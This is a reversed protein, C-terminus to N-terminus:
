RRVTGTADCHPCRAWELSADKVHKAWVLFKAELADWFVQGQEYGAAMDFHKEVFERAELVSSGASMCRGGQVLDCEELLPGGHVAERTPPFNIHLDLSYGEPTTRWSPGVPTGPAYLGSGVVIELAMRGDGSMVAYRWEENHYGHSGKRDHTCTSGDGCAYAPTKRQKRQKHKVTGEVAQKM